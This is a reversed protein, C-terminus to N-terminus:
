RERRYIALLPESTEDVIVTRLGSSADRTLPEGLALVGDHDLLDGARGFPRRAVILRYRGAPLRHAEAPDVVLWEFGDPLPMAPRDGLWLAAGGPAMMAARELHELWRREAAQEAGIAGREIEDIAARLPTLAAVSAGDLRALATAGADLWTAVDVQERLLGGWPLDADAAAAAHKPDPLL